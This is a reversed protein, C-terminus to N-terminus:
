DSLYYEITSVVRIKKLHPNNKDRPNISFQGQSAKKIKGLRSDSDQAFKLAVERANATAEQIMEPKLRNLGTFLYEIQNQYDSGTFAIGSKGLESLRNMAKRVLGVQRSYVTVTQIATYRFESREGGGYQQALKDTISPLSHSIENPEIGQTTLFGEIKQKGADIASYLQGLDNSAETFVIPWIVIDAPIDRESLGKVTVSREYEKFDIAASALLYGLSTLGLLIAVGLIAASTKIGSNM